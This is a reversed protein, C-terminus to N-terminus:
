SSTNIYTHTGNKHKLRVIALHHNSCSSVARLGAVCVDVGMRGHMGVYMCVYMCTDAGGGGGAKPAYKKHVADPM